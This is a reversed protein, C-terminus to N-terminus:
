VLPVTQGPVPVCAHGAARPSSSPRSTTCPVHLRPHPHRSTGLLWPAERSTPQPQPGRVLLHPNQAKSRFWSGPGRVRAKEWAGADECGQRSGKGEQEPATRELAQRGIPIQARVEGQKERSGMVGAPSRTHFSLGVSTPLTCIRFGSRKLQFGAQTLRHQAVEPLNSLDRLQKRAEMETISLIVDPAALM